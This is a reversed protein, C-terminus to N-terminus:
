PLQQDIIIEVMEQHSTEVELPASQLDGSAAIANGSKSIRASIKVRQQSSIKLEPRMAMSDDLTIMAPLESAKIRAVALPIPPGQVAKAFIFVVDDPDIQDKLKQDFEVQVKIAVTSIFEESVSVEGSQSQAEQVLRKLSEHIESGPETQSILPQLLESVRAFEEEQYALMGSLWRTKPHDPLIEFARKILPKAEGTLDSNNGRGIADAYDALLAVDDGLIKHANQFAEKADNFRNMAVYSKGLMRWGEGDSPDSELREALTAVMAEVDPLQEGSAQELQQRQLEPDLAILSGTQSYIGLAILPLSILLLVILWINNTKKITQNKETSITQALSQELESRAQDFQAQDIREAKLDNKLERLRERGISLNEENQIIGADENLVKRGLLPPLIFAFALALMVVVAILFSIM